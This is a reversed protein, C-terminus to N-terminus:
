LSTLMVFLNRIIAEEYRVALYINV